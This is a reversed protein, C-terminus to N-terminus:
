LIVDTYIRIIAEDHSRWLRGFGSMRGVCASTLRVTYKDTGFLVSHLRVLALSEHMRAYVNRLSRNNSSSYKYTCKTCRSKCLNRNNFIIDSQRAKKKMKNQQPEELPKRM